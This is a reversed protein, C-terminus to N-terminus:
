KSERRKMTNSVTLVILGLGIAGGGFMLATNSIGGAGTDPMRCQGAETDWLPDTTLPPLIKITQTESVGQAWVYTNYLTNATKSFVITWLTKDGNLVPDAATVNAPQTPLLLADHGIPDLCTAQVTPQALAPTLVNNAPACDNAWLVQNAATWNQGPFSAHDNGGDDWTFPPIIDQDHAGHGGEDGSKKVISRKSVTIQNFGGGQGNNFHCIAQEKTESAQAPSAFLVAGLLLFALSLVSAILKKM